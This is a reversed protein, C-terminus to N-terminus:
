SLVFCKDKRGHSAGDQFCLAARALHSDVQVKITSKWGGSSHSIFEWGLTNLQLLPFLSLSYTNKPRLTGAFKYAGAVESHSKIQFYFKQLPL